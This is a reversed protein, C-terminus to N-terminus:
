NITSFETRSRIFAPEFEEVPTVAVPLHIKDYTFVSFQGGDFDFASQAAVAERSHGGEVFGILGCATKQDSTVADRELLKKSFGGGSPQSRARTGPGQSALWSFCTPSFCWVCFIFM